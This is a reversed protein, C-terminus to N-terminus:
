SVDEPINAAVTELVVQLTTLSAHPIPVYTIERVFHAGTNKKNCIVTMM